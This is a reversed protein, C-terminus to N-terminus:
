ILRVQLTYLGQKQMEYQITHTSPTVATSGFQYALVPSQGFSLSSFSALAYESLTRSVVTERAELVFRANLDSMDKNEVGITVQYNQM